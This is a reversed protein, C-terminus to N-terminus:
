KIRVFDSAQLLKAQKYYSVVGHLKQHQLHLTVNKIDVGVTSWLAYGVGRRDRSGSGQPVRTTPGMQFVGEWNQCKISGAKEQEM